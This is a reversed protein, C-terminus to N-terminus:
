TVAREVITLMSFDKHKFNTIQLPSTVFEWNSPATTSDISLIVATSATTSSTKYFYVFLLASFLWIITIASALNWISIQKLM